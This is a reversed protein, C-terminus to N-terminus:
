GKMSNALWQAARLLRAEDRRAGIMQLGLPLGGCTMLPLTVTPVGLFTWMGNFVPDGTSSLGHPAPGCSSLCLVADYGSLSRLFSEHMTARQGLAKLYNGATITKAKDLLARLTQSLLERGRAEIERFHQVNEAHQICKHADIIERFAPPDDLRTVRSGLKGVFAEIESRAAEEAYEWAPTRMFAFKPAPFQTESLAAAFSTRARPFSAADSPDSQSLADGILALDEVCRGYVGVTDLTHSQMTVGTRSIMGLTPKLGYIGCFSAPRAVSGGTQTGLALPVMGCAVAAASGSSSGGPTHAINHPNRTKGPHRTALETTVNKGMIVAGADRLARVCTADESPQRNKHVPTGDETPMDATAIIDKIGVPLGHLLGPPNGAQISADAAKAQRMAHDPDFYQWARVDDERAKIRNICSGVLDVSTIKGDRIQRAAETATLDALDM